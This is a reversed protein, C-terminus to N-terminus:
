RTWGSVGSSVSATGSEPEEVGFFLIRTGALFGLSNASAYLHLTFADPAM